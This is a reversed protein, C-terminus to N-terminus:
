TVNTAFVYLLYLFYSHLTHIMKIINQFNYRDGFIDLFIAVEGLKFFFFFLLPLTMKWLSFFLTSLFVLKAPKFRLGKGLLSLKQTSINREVFDTIVM